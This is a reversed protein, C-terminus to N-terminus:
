RRSKVEASSARRSQLGRSRGAQASACGDFLDVTM